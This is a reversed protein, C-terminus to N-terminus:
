PDFNCSTQNYHRFPSKENGDDQAFYGQRRKRESDWKVQVASSSADMDSSRNRKRARSSSSAAKATAPQQPPAAAKEFTLTGIDIRESIADLGKSHAIHSLPQPFGAGQSASPGPVPATTSPGASSEGSHLTDCPDQYSSHTTEIGVDHNGSVEVYQDFLEPRFRFFRSPPRETPPSLSRSPAAVAEDSSSPGMTPGIPFLADHYSSVKTAATSPLAHGHQELSLESSLNSIPQISASGFYPLSELLQSFPQREHLREADAM